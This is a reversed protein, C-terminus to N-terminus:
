RAICVGINVPNTAEEGVSPRVVHQSISSFLLRYSFVIEISGYPTAIGPCDKGRRSRLFGVDSYFRHYRCIGEGGGSRWYWVRSSSETFPNNGGLKHTMHRSRSFWFRRTISHYVVIGEVSVKAVDGCTRMNLAM